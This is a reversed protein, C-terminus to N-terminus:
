AGVVRAREAESTLAGSCMIELCSTEVALDESAVDESSEHPPTAVVEAESLDAVEIALLKFGNPFEGPLWRIESPGICLIPVGM